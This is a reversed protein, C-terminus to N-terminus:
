KVELNKIEKMYSKVNIPKNVIERALDIKEQVPKIGNNLYNNTNNVAKNFKSGVSDNWSALGSAM